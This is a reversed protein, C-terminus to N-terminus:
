NFVARLAAGCANRQRGGSGTRRSIRVTSAQQVKATCTEPLVPSKGKSKFPASTKM